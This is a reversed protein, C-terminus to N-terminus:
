PARGVDIGQDSGAKSNARREYPGDMITTPRQRLEMIGGNLSSKPISRLMQVGQQGSILADQGMGSETVKPLDSGRWGRVRSPAEAGPDRGENGHRLREGGAGSVESSHGANVEEVGRGEWEGM